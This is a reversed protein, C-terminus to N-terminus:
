MEGRTTPVWIVDDHAVFMDTIRAWDDPHQEAMTGLFTGWFDDIDDWSDFFFLLKSNHPGGTNHGLKVWGNLIGENMAAQLVPAMVGSWMSDWEVIDAFNVRFTAAYMHTTERTPEAFTQSNIDWIEDRHEVIMRNLTSWDAESMAAM